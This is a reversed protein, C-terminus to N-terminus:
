NDGIQGHQWVQTDELCTQMNRRDVIAQSQRFPKLHLFHHLIDIIRIIGEKLFYIGTDTLVAVFQLIDIYIEDLELVECVLGSSASPLKIFNLSRKGLKM